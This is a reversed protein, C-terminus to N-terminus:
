ATRPLPPGWHTLQEPRLVTPGRGVRIQPTSRSEAVAVPAAAEVCGCVRCNRANRPLRGCHLLAKADGANAPRIVPAPHAADPFPLRHQSTWRRSPEV